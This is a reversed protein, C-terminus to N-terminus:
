TSKDFVIVLEQYRSYKGFYRTNFPYYKQYTMRYANKPLKAFFNKDIFTLHNKDSEFGKEGPVIIILRIIGLETANLFIDNMTKATNPLHELVHNMILTQYDKKLFSFKYKDKSPAYVKANLNQSLCYRIATKDIDLGISGGPLLKLLEGTSCGFDIAKGKNLKIINKLYFFHRIYKRFLSRKLQLNAYYSNFERFNNFRFTSRRLFCWFIWYYIRLGDQWGIGRYLKKNCQSTVSKFPIKNTVARALTEVEVRYDDAQWIIFPLIKSRFAKLGSLHDAIKVQFLNNFIWRVSGRGIKSLPLVKFNIIRNHIVLDTEEDFADILKLIDKPDLQGDGDIWVIFDYKLRYAELTGLRLAFGKGHNIKYNIIKIKPLYKKLVKLTRDTSGDNVVFIDAGIRKSVKILEEIVWSIIKEENFVPIIVAIKEKERKKKM